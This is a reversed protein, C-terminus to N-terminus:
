RGKKNMVILGAVLVVGAIGTLWAGMQLSRPKFEFVVTQKGEPVAIARFLLDVQMIETAQGSVTAQWGPYYTDTLILWGPSDLRTALEVREPEYLTIRVQDNASPQGRTFRGRPEVARPLRVLTAAPDFQPERMTALAAAENLVVDARHVVFARPLVALNEYIKVDGSHVQRYDGETSLLISRSTTTPQHILSVGRL